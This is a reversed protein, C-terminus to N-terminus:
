GSCLCFNNDASTVLQDVFIEQDTPWCKVGRRLSVGLYLQLQGRMKHKKQGRAVTVSQLKGGYGTECTCPTPPQQQTLM